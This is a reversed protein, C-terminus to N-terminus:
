AGPLHCLSPERLGHLAPLVRQEGSAVGASARFLATAGCDREGERERERERQRGRSLSSRPPGPARIHPLTACCHPENGSKLRDVDHADGLARAWAAKAAKPGTVTRSEAEFGGKSALLVPAVVAFVENWLPKLRRLHPVEMGELENGKAASPTEAYAPFM